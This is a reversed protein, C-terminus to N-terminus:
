RGAVSVLNGGLLSSSGQNSLLMSTKGPAIQRAKASAALTNNIDDLKAQAAAAAQQAAAEDAAKQAKETAAQVETKGAVKTVDDPNIAAGGSLNATVDYLSRGAQDWKGSLLAAAGTKTNGINKKVNEAIGSVGKDLAGAAKSVADAVGSAAASVADGAQQVPNKGGGM